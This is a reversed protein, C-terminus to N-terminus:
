LKNFLIGCIDLIIKKSDHIAATKFEDHGVLLVIIDAHKIAKEVSVHEASGRLVTPLEKINPEVILINNNNLKTLRHSIEIAPSERIDDVNPKYSLGFCAIIADKDINQRTSKFKKNAATIKNIVWEVKNTNIKRALRILEADKKADSIIFWPDVAICHGGVGPGPQLINVRPHHNALNVLDWINIGLNECIISIENAFAINIDRYSNETLKCMEATRSDTILCKGNIFIKYFTSALKSCNETIGGIIRDNNVMEYIINGPIVREPCYALNIESSDTHIHPLKLDSRDVSLWQSFRETSGVPCTSELIILDGKKLVAAISHCVAKVFSLDPERNKKLPTPVAILHVDAEEPITAARLNGNSTVKRVLEALDKEVTCIDGENIANVVEENIDIGLVDIGNNAIIAATPLGIYGIGYISVKRIRM